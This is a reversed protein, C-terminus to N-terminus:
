RTGMFYYWATNRYQRLQPADKGGNQYITAFDNFQRMVMESVYGQPPRQNHQAFAFVVAEQCSRPCYGLHLNDVYVMYNMFTNIDRDLLPAALLYQLALGNQKNHMVLQGFIKSLEHDDFLFDDKLRLQRM